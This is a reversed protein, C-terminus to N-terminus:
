DGLRGRWFPRNSLNDGNIPIMELLRTEVHGDVFVMNMARNGGHRIRNRGYSESWINSRTLASPCGDSSSTNRREGDTVAMQKSPMLVRSINMTGNNVIYPEGYDSIWTNIMYHAMFGLLNNSQNWPLDEQAPCGFVDFPRSLETNSQSRWHLKNALPKNAKLSYLGDQWRGSGSYSGSGSNLLGNAKPFRGDNNDNYQFLVFGVQRLNSACAIDRAKARAKNLAPLLLAALIAIVGVVILLEILTFKAINWKM